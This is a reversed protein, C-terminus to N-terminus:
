AKRLTNGESNNMAAKLKEIVEEAKAAGQESIYLSKATHSFDILEQEKLEDLISFEVGKWALRVSEEKWSSLYLLALALNNRFENDNVTEM